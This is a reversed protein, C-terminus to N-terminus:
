GWSKSGLKSETKIQVSRYVHISMSDDETHGKTDPKNHITAVKQNKHYHQQTCIHM